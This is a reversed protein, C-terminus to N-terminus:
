QVFFEYTYEVGTMSLDILRGEVKQSFAKSGVSYQLTMASDMLYLQRELWILQQWACFRSPKSFM